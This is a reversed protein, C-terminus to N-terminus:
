PHHVFSTDRTQELTQVMLTSRTEGEGRSGLDDGAARVVVLFFTAKFFIKL